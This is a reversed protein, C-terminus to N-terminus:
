GSPSVNAGRLLSSAFLGVDGLGNLLSLGRVALRGDVARLATADGPRCACGSGPARGGVGPALSSSSCFSNSCPLPYLVTVLLAMSPAMREVDEAVLSVIVDRRRDDRM